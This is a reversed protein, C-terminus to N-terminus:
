VMSNIQHAYCVMNKVSNKVLEQVEVLGSAKLLGKTPSKLSKKAQLIESPMMLPDSHSAQEPEEMIDLEVAVERGVIHDIYTADGFGDMM